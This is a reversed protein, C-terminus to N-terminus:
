VLLCVFLRWEGEAGMFRLDNLLRFQTVPSFQMGESGREGGFDFTCNLVFIM